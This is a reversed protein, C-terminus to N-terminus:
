FFSDHMEEDSGSSSDDPSMGTFQKPKKKPRTHTVETVTTGARTFEARAHLPANITTKNRGINSGYVVENANRFASFNRIKQNKNLTDVNLIKHNDQTIISAYSLQFHTEVGGPVIPNHLLHRDIANQTKFPQSCSCIHQMCAKTTRRHHSILSRAEAYINEEKNGKVVIDHNWLCGPIPCHVKM